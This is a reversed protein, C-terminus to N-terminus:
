PSQLKFRSLCKKRLQIPVLYYFYITLTVIGACGFFLWANLWEGQNYENRSLSLLTYFPIIYLFPKLLSNFIYTKLSLKLENCAYIPVIIGYVINMPIVFLLAATTLEWQELGTFLLGIGFLVFITVFAFLSIRGHQNMGMLIRISTDQGMPLLQGIALIMVLPWLAYEAGMWYHLVVDGYIFLLGLTPLAFAFSLKTTNIFLAQIAQADGAGQMSGTTPTLMLTFKTMFTKIQKTLAMPRAFIALAAPGISSVLMVSITQLLIIPPINSLMSKIGFKLLMKTTKWNAMKLNFKFEKCVKNVFVFRLSQFIVTSILYGIAMGAVSLETLYLALVMLIISLVSDGAHLANHIDWRHYGTLLGSASGSAMQFAVGAGLFLIVLQATHTNEALTEGFYPPLLLYFLVTALMAVAAFILQVFLASNAVYNLLTLEGAGRHKAVYRNFCAGMGLGVLSLYSVFSWGFDWIGLAAQGVKDDVLRPMIFGSFILVLQSAWSVMLNWAFRDQGTLDAKQPEVKDTM